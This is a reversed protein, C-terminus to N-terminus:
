EDSQIHDQLVSMRKLPNSRLRRVAVGIVPGRMKPILM